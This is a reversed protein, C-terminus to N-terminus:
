ERNEEEQLRMLHRAAFLMQGYGEPCLDSVMFYGTESLDHVQFLRYEGTVKTGDINTSEYGVVDDEAYKTILKTLEQRFETLRSM